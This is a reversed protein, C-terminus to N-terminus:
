GGVTTSHWAVLRWCTNTRAYVATYRLRELGSQGRFRFALDSRGTVVSTEGYIRVLVDGHEATDYCLEGSGLYSLFDSRPMLDGGPFALTVDEALLQGLAACDEALLAAFWADHTKRVAQQQHARSEDPDPTGETTSM